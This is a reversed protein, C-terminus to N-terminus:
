QPSGNKAEMIIPPLTLTKREFRAGAIVISCRSCSWGEFILIGPRPALSLNRLAIHCPNKFDRRQVSTIYEGVHDVHTKSEESQSWSVKFSPWQSSYWTMQTYKINAFPILSWREIHYLKVSSIIELHHNWIHKIKVGVQPSLGIQSFIKWNPQFWWCSGSNEITNITSHGLLVWSPRPDERHGMGSIADLLQYFCLGAAMESRYLLYYSLCPYGVQDRLDIRCSSGPYWGLIPRSVLSPPREEETAM